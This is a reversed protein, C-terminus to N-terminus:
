LKESRGKPQTSMDPQWFWYPGFERSSVVWWDAYEDIGIVKAEFAFPPDDDFTYLMVTEGLAPCKDPAEMGFSKERFMAATKAVVVTRRPVNFDVEFWKM